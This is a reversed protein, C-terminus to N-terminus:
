ASVQALKDVVFFSTPMLSYESEGKEGRRDSKKGGERKGRIVRRLRNLKKKKKKSEEGKGRRGGFGVGAKGPGLTAGELHIAAGGSSVGVGLRDPEKWRYGQGRELWFLWTRPLTELLSTPISPFGPRYARAKEFCLRPKTYIVFFLRYGMIILTRVLFYM